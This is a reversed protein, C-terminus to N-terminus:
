ASHFVTNWLVGETTVCLNLLTWMQLAVVSMCSFKSYVLCDLGLQLRSQAWTVMCHPASIMLHTGLSFHSSYVRLTPILLITCSTLPFALHMSCESMCVPTMTICHLLVSLTSISVNVYGRPANNYFLVCSTVAVTTVFLRLQVVLTCLISTLGVAHCVEQQNDNLLSRTTDLATYGATYLPNTLLSM